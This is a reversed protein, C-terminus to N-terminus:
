PFMNLGGEVMFTSGTLYRSGDSALFVMLPGVDHLSDGARRMPVTALLAAYDKPQAAKFAAVPETETWPCVVNVTIGYQGWERAATRTIARIAEKAANYCTFGEQGKQGASSGTNIVRGSGATKLHPFAAKMAWLTATAGTRFTHEWEEEDTEAFPVYSAAGKPKNRTGFSQANNVLIHLAGFAAVTESVMDYVEERQGVDCTIGIAMGGDKKIEDVVKDVTAATRSAVAVKAGAQAYAIAIARGIGRGAGTVIAVKGQLPKTM